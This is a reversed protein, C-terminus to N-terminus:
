VAPIDKLFPQEVLCSNLSKIRLQKSHLSRLAQPRHLEYISVTQFTNQLIYLEIYYINKYYLICNIYICYIILMFLTSRLFFTSEILLLFLCGKLTGKKQCLMLVENHTFIVIGRGEKGGEIQPLNHEKFTHLPPKKNKNQQKRKCCKGSVWPWPFPFPFM